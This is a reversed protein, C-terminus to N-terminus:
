SRSKQGWAQLFRVAELVHKDLMVHGARPAAASRFPWRLRGLMRALRIQDKHAKDRGGWGVFIPARIQQKKASKELYSAGDGGAFVAFGDAHIERAQALRARLALSAAFYAGNSFGFIWVREFPVGNKEIEHRARAWEQIVETEVEAHVAGTPWTWWDTMGQPGIGRRGRPMLVSFGHTRAARLAARQQNYQWGSGPQIVGHLFIVLTRPGELIKDPEAWCIDGDLM